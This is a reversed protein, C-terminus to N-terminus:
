LDEPVKVNFKQALKVYARSYLVPIIDYDPLADPDIALTPFIKGDYTITCMQWILNKYYSKISTVTKGAFCVPCSPGILSTFFMTHKCCIDYFAKENPIYPLYLEQVYNQVVGVMNSKLFSTESQVFRLRDLIDDFGVGLDLSMFVWRNQLINVDTENDQSPLMIAMLGRCQTRSKREAMANCKRHICYDHIAQSLCALLVDNVTVKAAKNLEKVFALSIPHFDLITQKKSYVKV